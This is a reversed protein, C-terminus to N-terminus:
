RILSSPDFEQRLSDKSLDSAVFTVFLDYLLLNLKHDQVTMDKMLNLAEKETHTKERYPRVCSMADFVDVLAVVEALFHDRAVFSTIDDLDYTLVFPTSSRPNPNQYRKVSRRVGYGSPHGGYEHHSGAVFATEAPYDRTHALMEYGKIAHLEITSRDYAAGSEFYDIHPIKGIDHLLASFSSTTIEDDSLHRFGDKMVKAFPLKYYREYKQGPEFLRAIKEALGHKVNHNLFLLFKTTQIFVRNIHSLTSGDKYTELKSLFRRTEMKESLNKTVNAIIDRSERATEKIKQNQRLLELTEPRETKALADLNVLASKSILFTDEGAKIIRKMKEIPDFGSELVKLLEGGVDKLHEVREAPKLKQ